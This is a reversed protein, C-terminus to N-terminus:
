EDDLVFILGTGVFNPRLTELHRPLKMKAAGSYDRASEVHLNAREEQQLATRRETFPSKKHSSSM